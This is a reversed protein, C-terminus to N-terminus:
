HMTHHAQIGWSNINLCNELVLCIGQSKGSNGQNKFIIWSKGQGSELERVKGRNWNKEQFTSVGLFCFTSFQLSVELVAERIDAVFRTRDHDTVCCATLFV